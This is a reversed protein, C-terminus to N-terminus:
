GHALLNVLTTRYNEGEINKIAVECSDCNFKAEDAVLLPVANFFNFTHIQPWSWDKEKTIYPLIAQFAKKLSKGSPTELVWLNTGTQESLEAVIAFANLIFVSYHLSTTRDLELPFLGEDNMQKDLRDAARLVIRNALAASDVYLAMSLTQADYWVGHNNKANMEKQGIRSTQIWDLFAAFWGKMGAEDRGTWYKSPQLLRIGDIAWIFFRSDILGEARGDVVGKVAQGYNLNPNMRTATDLFWVELLRAAHQAYKEDGSFYYALSLLYVNNCLVPLNTKDPYSRVEPNVIGDKNIYPLGNPKAPDPWFYPAISMYDHKDGSPPLGSKQMVSVPAYNLARGADKLLQDYAPMLGPDNARVAKKKAELVHFDLKIMDSKSLLSDQGAASAAMCCVLGLIPFSRKAISGYKEATSWRKKIWM